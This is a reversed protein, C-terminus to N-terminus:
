MFAHRMAFRMRAAFAFGAFVFAVLAFFAAHHNAEGVHEREEDEDPEPTEPEAHDHHTEDRPTPLRGPLKERRFGFNM